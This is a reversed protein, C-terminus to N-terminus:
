DATPGLTTSSRANRTVGWTPDGAFWVGAARQRLAHLESEVADFLEIAAPDFQTGSEARLRRVAEERSLQGRYPRSSTMADYTDAVAMLRAHPPIATGALADPYGRGDWREHHHRVAPLAEALFPVSELLRYGIMPHAEIAAREDGTLPGAKRLIADPVGVKGIDHLMGARRLTELEAAPLGGARALALAFATVRASHGATYPDHAAAYELFTEGEICEMAFYPQAGLPTQSELDFRRRLEPSSLGSTIAKVAVPRRPQEQEAVIRYHGFIGPLAPQDGPRVEARGVITPTHDVPSGFVPARGADGNM